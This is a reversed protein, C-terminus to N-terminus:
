EDGSLKEKADHAAGAAKDRLDHGTEKVKGTAQDRKGANELDDNDTAAGVQEKGEGVAQETKDKAKDFVGM